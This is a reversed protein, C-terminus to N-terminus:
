FGFGLMFSGGWSSATTYEPYSGGGQTGGGYRTLEAALTIAFTKMRVGLTTRYLTDSLTPFAGSALIAENDPTAPDDPAFALQSTRSRMFTFRAALYPSLSMVGNVGFSKSVTVDLDTASLDWEPLGFLRTWAGHIEVDPLFKLGENISWSAELQGAYYSSQSFYLVRGGLALSYPLGKRVHLAAFTAEFPPTDSKTPWPSAGDIAQPHISTIAGELSFDFGIMGTTAASELRPATMALVMDTSLVGFRHRASAATAAPDPDLPDVAAAAGETAPGLKLLNLDFPEARATSACLALAVAVAPALPRRM